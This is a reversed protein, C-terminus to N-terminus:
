DYTSVVEVKRWVFIRSKKCIHLIIERNKKCIHLIFEGDTTRRRETLVSGKVVKLMKKKKILTYVRVKTATRWWNRVM